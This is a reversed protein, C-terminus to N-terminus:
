FYVAGCDDSKSAVVLATGLALLIIAVPIAAPANWFLIALVACLLLGHGAIHNFLRM